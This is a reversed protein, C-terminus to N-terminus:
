GVVCVSGSGEVFDVDTRCSAAVNDYRCFTCDSEAACTRACYNIGADSICLSDVPCDADGQCGQVGCYGGDIEGICELDPGCDADESCVAGHGCTGPVCIKRNDSGGGSSRCIFWPSVEQQCFAQEDEADTSSVDEAECSLFCMMQGTSEFPACVQPLTTECEGEIACCDEDTACEHTCYGEPVRDLCEVAGALESHDIGPYCDDPTLCVSGVQDPSGTEGGADAKEDKGCAIAVVALLCPLVRSLSRPRVMPGLM